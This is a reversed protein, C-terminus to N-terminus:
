GLPRRGSGVLVAGDLEVGDDVPRAVQEAAAVARRHIAERVDPELAGLATALPGAFRPVHEWWAELSDYTVPAPVQLVEVDALGGAQLTDALLAPDDLSFPGRVEPPPFAVGFQAGVADMILGLWPNAARSDWTMASYRGGPRLVRRAEAVAAAHDQAFMLGHRCIVADFSEDPAQIQELACALTTVHPLEASRRAAAEVMLPADDALVVSGSTGTREAAALGANGAGCAIDLVADGAEIVAADLMATTGRALQEDIREADREWVAAVGDWMESMSALM